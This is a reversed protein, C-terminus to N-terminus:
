NRIDSITVYLTVYLGSINHCKETVMLMFWMCQHNSVSIIHNTVNKLMEAAGSPATPVQLYKAADCLQKVSVVATSLASEPPRM